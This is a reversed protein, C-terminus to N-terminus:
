QIILGSHNAFWERQDFLATDLTEDAITKNAKNEFVFGGIKIKNSVEVRCAQAFAKKIEKELKMDAERVYFVVESEQAYKRMSLAKNKMYNTYEDSDVYACLADHACAFVQSTLEDRKDILQKTREVNSKSIEISANSIIEALEIDLQLKADKEADKHLEHDAKAKIEEAENLILKCEAEVQKSIEEKIYRVVEEIEQM